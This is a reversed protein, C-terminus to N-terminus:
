EEDRSEIVAVMGAIRGKRSADKVMEAQQTSALVYESCLDRKNSNMPSIKAGSSGVSLSPFYFLMTRFLPASAFTSLRQLFADEACGKWFLKLVRVTFPKNKPLANVDFIQRQGAREFQTRNSPTLSGDHEREEEQDVDTAFSSLLLLHHSLDDSQAQTAGPPAERKERKKRTKGGQFNITLSAPLLSILLRFGDERIFQKICQPSLFSTTITEIILMETLAGNTVTSETIPAGGEVGFGLQAALTPGAFSPASGSDKEDAGNLAKTGHASDENKEKERRWQLVWSLASLAVSIGREKIFAM